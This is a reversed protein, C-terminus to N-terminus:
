LVSGNQLSLWTSICLYKRIFTFYKKMSYVGYTIYRNTTGDFTIWCCEIQFEYIDTSRNLRICIMNPMERAAWISKKNLRIKSKMRKWVMRTFPLYVPVRLCQEREIKLNNHQRENLFFYRYIIKLFPMEIANRCVCWEEFKWWFLKQHYNLHTIWWIKITPVFGAFFVPFLQM